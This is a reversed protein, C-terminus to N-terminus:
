QNSLNSFRFFYIYSFSVAVFCLARFFHVRYMYHQFLFVFLHNENKKKKKTQRRKWKGKVTVDIKKLIYFYLIVDYVILLFISLINYVNWVELTIELTGHRDEASPSNVKQNLSYKKLHFGMFYRKVYSSSHFRFFVSNEMKGYLNPWFPQM